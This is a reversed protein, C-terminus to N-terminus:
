GNEPASWHRWRPALDRAGDAFRIWRTKGTAAEVPGLAVTDDCDFTSVQDRSLGALPAALHVLRQPVSVVRVRRGLQIALLDVIRRFPYAEPGGVDLALGPLPRDLLRAIVDNWDRVHVPQRLQAGRGVIPVVPWRLVAEALRAFTERHRPEHQPHPPGYPACPRVIAYPVGSGAVRAEEAARGRAYANQRAWSVQTTSAHVLGAGTARCVALVTSLMTDNAAPDGLKCALHVVHSPGHAALAEVAGPAALDQQIVTVPLGLPTQNVVARVDRGQRALEDVLWAGLFSSAGTVLVTGARTM